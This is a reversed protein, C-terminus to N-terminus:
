EERIKDWSNILQLVEQLQEKRVSKRTISKISKALRGITVVSRPDNEYTERILDKEKKKSNDEATNSCSHTIEDGKRFVFYEKCFPCWYEVEDDSYYKNYTLM